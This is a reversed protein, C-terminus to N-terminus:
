APPQAPRRVVDLASVLPVPADRLLRRLGRPRHELYRDFFNITSEVVIRGHEGGFPVHGGGILTLLFKPPAAQGFVVLSGTYPVTGDQNGHILLVPLRRDYSFSGGPFPLQLGSMPVLADVRPDICCRNLLGITTIGGLSHGAVGIRSPELIGTLGSGPQRNLRLMEDIVFSVDAPQNVYDTLRPGGPATGSSLPFTPAAVVYGAAAFQRLLGAYAPGTATFGHAFVILPFPGSGRAPRADPLDPGGPAGRAPYFVVTPLTRSPKGPVGGNADTPRSTDVFTLTKVGVAFLRDAAGARPAASVASMAPTAPGAAVTVSLLLVTV